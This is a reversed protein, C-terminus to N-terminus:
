PQIRASAFLVDAARCWILLYQADISSLQDATATYVLNGNTSKLAGLDVFTSAQLDQSIYIRLDPGNQSNFSSLEYTYEGSMSDKFTTVTGSVSHGSEVFPHSSIQELSGSVMEDLAETPVTDEPACGTFILSLALISLATKVLDHM